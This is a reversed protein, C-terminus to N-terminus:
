PDTAYSAAMTSKTISGLGLIAGFWIIPFYTAARTLHWAWTAPIGRVLPMSKLPWAHPSFYARKPTYGPFRLVRRGNAAAAIACVGALPSAYAMRRYGKAANESVADIEAQTLRRDLGRSLETLRGVVFITRSMESFLGFGLAPAWSQLPPLKEFDIAAGPEFYTKEIKSQDSIVVPWPSRPSTDTPQGDQFSQDADYSSMISSWIPFSEHGVYPLVDTTTLELGDSPLSQLKTTLRSASGSNIAWAGM